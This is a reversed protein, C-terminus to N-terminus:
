YETVIESYIKDIQDVPFTHKGSRADRLVVASNDVSVIRGHWVRDAITILNVEKDVLESNGGIEAARYVVQRKGM